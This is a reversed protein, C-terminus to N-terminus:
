PVPVPTVAPILTPVPAPSPTLNCLPNLSTGVDSHFGGAPDPDRALKDEIPVIPPLNQHLSYPPQSGESAMKTSSKMLNTFLDEELHTPQGM